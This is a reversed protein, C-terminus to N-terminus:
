TELATLRSILTAIQTKLESVEINLIDVESQLDERKNNEEKIAGVCLATIANYNLSLPTENGSQDYETGLVISECGSIDRIDQALLGIENNWSLGVKQEEWKEDSPIWIGSDQKFDILKEYHLTQMQNIKNLCDNIEIENYKIREDSSSTITGSATLNGGTITVNGAVTLTTAIQASGSVDLHNYITTKPYPGFQGFFIGTSISRIYAVGLGPVSDWCSGIHLGGYSGGLISSNLIRPGVGPTDVSNVYGAIYGGVMSSGFIDNERTLTLINSNDSTSSTDLTKTSESGITVDDQTTGINLSHSSKGTNISINGSSYNANGNSDLVFVSSGGGGSGGSSDLNKLIGRQYVNGYINIDGLIDLVYSSNPTSTGIGVSGGSNNFIANNGILTFGATASLGNIYYLGTINVDGSIQLRPIAYANSPKNLFGTVGPGPYGIKVYNVSPDMAAEILNSTVGNPDTYGITYKHLLSTSSSGSSGSSGSSQLQGNVYYQGTINVDGDIQLRPAVNSVGVGQIVGAGGYGIKIYNTTFGEVITSVSGNADTYQTNGTQFVSTGSSGSSGSSQLQGNIYYQGTINVDGDIQLRPAASSVGVGQIM